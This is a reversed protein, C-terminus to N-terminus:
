LSSGLTCELVIYVTYYYSGIWVEVIQFVHTNLNASTKLVELPGLGNVMYAKNVSGLVDGVHQFM